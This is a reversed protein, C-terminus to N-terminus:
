MRIVTRFLKCPSLDDGGNNRFRDRYEAAGVGNVNTNHHDSGLLYLDPNCESITEIFRLYIRHRQSASYLWNGYMTFFANSWWIVASPERRIAEILASSDELLNCRVYEHPLRRYEQWHRRFASAGGWRELEGSWVTELQSDTVTDPTAGEWLQYFTEPSPFKRFLYRVFHPFDDGDWERVLTQKVELANPSYDFYVVRTDRDFGHTQLIRNPKFGAAVSYLSSLPPRFGDHPVEVDDYSEINWLFVGRRANATQKSVTQVFRRQDSTLQGLCAEHEVRAIGEGLLPEMARRHRASRAGLDLLHRSLSPPMSPLEGQQIRDVASELQRLDVLLCLPRVPESQEAHPDPIAVLSFPHRDTWERVAQFFDRHARSEGSPWQEHIVCGYALLLCYRHGGEAARVLVAPITDEELITGSYGYRTWAITTNRYWRRLAEDFAPLSDRWLGVVLGFSNACTARTGVTTVEM